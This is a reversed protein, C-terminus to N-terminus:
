RNIRKWHKRFIFFFIICVVLLVVLITTITVEPSSLKGKNIFILLANSIGVLASLSFIATLAMGAKTVTNGVEYSTQDM